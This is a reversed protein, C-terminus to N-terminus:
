SKKFKLVTNKGLLVLAGALVGLFAEAFLTLLSHWHETFHHFSPLSHAILSGGVTFMAITGLVGLSKMLQPAFLLLAKGLSKYITQSKRLLFLGLDDLKVIGAVLGYVGVTMLVSILSLVLAQQSISKDSVTGLSIVIIEASLIFDTRIAGRIKQKELLSKNLLVDESSSESAPSSAMNPSSIPQTKSKENKLKDEALPSDNEPSAKKPGHFFKEHVKEFGEFCLFLGGLVLLPQIVVPLAASLALACPVLILKNVFSGKAVAFVVPIERSADVGSVQEANLALDDGLVGSTKTAAVKTMVAVDDLMTAIDDILALLSAGAM